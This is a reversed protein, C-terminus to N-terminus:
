KIQVLDRSKHKYTTKMKIVKTNSISQKMDARAEEPKRTEKAM